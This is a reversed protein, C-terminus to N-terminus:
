VVGLPVVTGIGVARLESSALLPTVRRVEVRRNLVEASRTRVVPSASGFGRTVLASAPIGEGFVLYQKVAEARRKSLVLNEAEDGPFDAHGEILFVKSPSNELVILIAASLHRLRAADQLTLSSRGTAFTLSSVAVSPLAVLFERKVLTTTIETRSFRIKSDASPSQAAPPAWM